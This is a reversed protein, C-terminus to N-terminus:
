INKKVANVKVGKIMKEIFVKIAIKVLLIFSAISLKIEARVLKM